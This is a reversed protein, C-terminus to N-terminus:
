FQEFKHEEVGLALSLYADRLDHLKRALHTQYDLLLSQKSRPVINNEVLTNTLSNASCANLDRQLEMTTATNLFYRHIDQVDTM